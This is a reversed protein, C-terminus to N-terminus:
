ECACQVDCLRSKYWITIWFYIRVQPTIETIKLSIQKFRSCDCIHIKRIFSGNKKPTVKEYLYWPWSGFRKAVCLSRLNNIKTNKLKELPGLYSTYNAHVSNLEKLGFISYNNTYIEYQANLFDQGNKHLWLIFSPYTKSSMCSSNDPTIDLRMPNDVRSTERAHGIVPVKQGKVWQKRELLSVVFYYTETKLTIFSM